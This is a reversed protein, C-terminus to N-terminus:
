NDFSEGKVHAANIAQQADKVATDFGLSKDIVHFSFYQFANNITKPIGVVAVKLGRRRIERNIGREEISNVIKSPDHSVRSIGLITGGRKNVVKPTLPLTNQTYFGRYEGQVCLIAEIDKKPICGPKVSQKRKYSNCSRRIQRLNYDEVNLICGGVLPGLNVFQCVKLSLQYNWFIVQGTSWRM